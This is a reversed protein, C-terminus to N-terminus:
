GGLLRAYLLEIANLEPLSVALLRTAALYLLVPGLISVLLIQVISRTELLWSMMALALFTSFFFGIPEMTLAYVLMIGFFAAGRLKESKSLISHPDHAAQENKNLLFLLIACMLAMAGIVIVPFLSPSIASLSRGFLLKPQAVLSSMFITALLSIVLFVIVTMVEPTRRINLFKM